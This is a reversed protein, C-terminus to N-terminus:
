QASDAATLAIGATLFQEHFSYRGQVPLVAREALAIRRTAHVIFTGRPAGWSLAEVRVDHFGLREGVLPFQCKYFAEKASFVLTAAMAQEGQPLSGLWDIETPTCIFPWLEAKVSEAVETDLGVARLLTQQAVVAACLGATHAISGVLNEPWLPQRDEAVKIPFDHIGFEALLARACLRGASFEQVRKLVAKGLKQGEGPLLASPNGPERLEAVLAGRPFLSSLSPSLKAPNAEIIAIIPSPSRAINILNQCFARGDPPSSL